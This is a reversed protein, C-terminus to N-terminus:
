FGLGGKFGIAQHERGIFSTYFDVRLIKLIHELGIGIEVYNDVTGARLYNVSGVAQLKTKRLLPLKNVIFGDFHHEYQGM